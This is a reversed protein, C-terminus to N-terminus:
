AYATWHDVPYLKKGSIEAMPKIRYANAFSYIKVSPQDSNTSVTKTMAEGIFSGPVPSCEGQLSLTEVSQLGIQRIVIQRKGKLAICEYYDINTQDYGWSCRFIDGVRIDHPKSREAKRAANQQARSRLGDAWEKIKQLLGEETRFRYHWDPKSRRGGFAMLTPATPDRFLECGEPLDTLDVKVYSKPVYDQRTMTYKM